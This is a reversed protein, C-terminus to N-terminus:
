FKTLKTVTIDKDSSLIKIFYVGKHLESINIESTLKNLNEIKIIQKGSVDYISVESITKQSQIKVFKDAPNPFVSYVNAQNQDIGTSVIVTATYEDAGCDSEASLKVSYEGPLSYEHIPNTETSFTGDGFEM